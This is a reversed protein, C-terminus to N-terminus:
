SDKWSRQGRHQGPKQHVWTGKSLKPKEPMFNIQHRPRLWSITQVQDNCYFPTACLLVHAREMAWFM